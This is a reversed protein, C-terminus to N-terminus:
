LYVVELTASGDLPIEQTLPLNEPKNIFATVTIKGAVKRVMDPLYSGSRAWALTRNKGITGGSGTPLWSQQDFSYLQRPELGDVRADAQNFVMAYGGVKAGAVIGLGFNAEEALVEQLVSARRNDHARLGLKAPGGNCQIVLDVSRSELWTYDGRKLRSQPILGYDIIGANSLQPACAGPRILGTVRVDASHAADAAIAAPSSSLLALIPLM